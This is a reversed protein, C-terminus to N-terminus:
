SVITCIDRASERAAYRILDEAGLMMTEGENLPNVWKERRSNRFEENPVASRYYYEGVAGMLPKRKELAETLKDGCNKLLGPPLIERRTKEFYGIYLGEIAEYVGQPVKKLEEALTRPDAFTIDAVVCVRDSIEEKSAEKRLRTLHILYGKLRKDVNRKVAIGALYAKITDPSTSKKLYERTFQMIQGINQNALSSIWPDKAKSYVDYFGFLECGLTGLVYASYNGKIFNIVSPKKIEGLSLQACLLNTCVTPM